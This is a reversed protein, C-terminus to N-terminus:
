QKTQPSLCYVGQFELERDDACVGYPPDTFFIMGDSRMVIDNPSNLRKGQFKDALVKVIGSEDMRSIRRNKQECSLLGGDIGLTNGNAQGTAERLVGTEGARYWYLQSTPIDSFILCEAMSGTLSTLSDGANLWVPGEVFQFGDAVKNIESSVIM